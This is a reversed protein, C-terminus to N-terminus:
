CCVSYFSHSLQNTLSAICDDKEEIEYELRKIQNQLSLILDNWMEPPKEIQQNPLDVLILIDGEGIGYSNLPRNVDLIVKRYHIQVTNPNLSM